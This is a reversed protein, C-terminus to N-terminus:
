LSRQYDQFSMSDKTSQYRTAQIEQIDELRGQFGAKQLLSDITQRQNWGQELAVSPLYTASYRRDLQFQITIGHVGVAWDFLGCPEFDTLLSLSCELDVLEQKSVPKFRTDTAAAIAFYPLQQSLPKSQFTGICGRLLGKRKWTVFVPFSTHDDLTPLPQNNLHSELTKFCFILYD